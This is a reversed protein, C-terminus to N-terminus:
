CHMIMFTSPDAHLTGTIRTLIERFKFKRSLNEFFISIDFKMKFFVNLSPRTTGHPRVSPCFSMVFNIDNKAIKRVEDLLVCESLSDKPTRLIRAIFM